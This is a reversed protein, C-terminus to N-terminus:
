EVNLPIKKIASEIYSGAESLHKNINVNKLSRQPIYYVQYDSSIKLITPIREKREEEESEEVDNEDKERESSITLIVNKYDSKKDPNIISEIAPNKLSIRMLMNDQIGTLDIKMFQSFITRASNTFDPIQFEYVVGIRNIRDKAETLPVISHVIHTFIEEVKKVTVLSGESM